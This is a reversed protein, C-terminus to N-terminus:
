NLCEKTVKRFKELQKSEKSGELFPNEVDTHILDHCWICTSVLNSVKNIKEIPLKPDKHHTNLNSSTLLVGCIKCRCKDRNLAYGRNMYFEFNRKIKSPSTHKNGYTRVTLDERLTIEDPRHLALQRETREQWVKRGEETYPIEVPNKPKPAKYTSFALNTVGVKCGEFELYYVRSTHGAHRVPLNDTECAPIKRKRFEGLKSGTIKMFVKDLKYWLHHDITSGVGSVMSSMSWYNGIGIVMSNYRQIAQIRRDLHFADRIQKIQGKLKNRAMKIAKGSPRSYTVLRSSGKRSKGVRTEIGLFTVPHKTADTILTKDVALELKGNRQLFSRALEKMRIANEQSDTLIVWDDAYRVLYFRPYKEPHRAMVTFANWKNKHQQIKPHNEWFSAVYEDFDQLYANALLPSIIGGQATGLPNEAVEGMIGAKLMKKVIVLIRKDHIGMKWLKKLLINHNVNDFFGRIDGEVIWFCKAQWMIHHMRAIAQTADRMPRFGYSHDFFQAELIPELIMRVIEQVIRDVITPIGLARKEAKGPKDIYKRRVMNPKYSDLQEQVLALVQEFDKQLIDNIRKGDVGPTNSGRNGKIKHIATVITIPNRALELLGYFNRKGSKAEMYMGDLADQLQRETKIELRHVKMPGRGKPARM